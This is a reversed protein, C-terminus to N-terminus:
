GAVPPPEVEAEGGVPTPVPRPLAAAINAADDDSMPFDIIEDTTTDIFRLRRGGLGDNTAPDIDHVSFRVGAYEIRKM